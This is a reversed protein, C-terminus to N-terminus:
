TIPWIKLGSTIPYATPKKGSPHGRWNALIIPLKDGDEFDFKLLYLNDNVQTVQKPDSGRNNFNDGAVCGKDEAVYHRVSNMVRGSVADSTANKASIADKTVTAAARDKLAQIAADGIDEITRDMWIGLNTNIEDLSIGDNNTGTKGNPNYVTTDPAEHTHTGAYHIGEPELKVNQLEGSGVAAAVRTCIEERVDAIMGGGILDITLFLVTNGNADSVAICTVALGDEEDVKGDGNDDVMGQHSLRNWVDGVGRLPLQMLGSTIDGDVVYPNIDMRAFGVYFTDEGTAEAPTYLNGSMSLVIALICLISLFKKM